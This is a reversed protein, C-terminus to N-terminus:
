GFEYAGEAPELLVWSFVGVTVMTVGAERMLRLDEEWVAEPWQEPNYDGGYALTRLRAPWQATPNPATDTAAPSAPSRTM